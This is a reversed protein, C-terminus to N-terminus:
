RERAENDTIKSRVADEGEKKRKRKKKIGRTQKEKRNKM